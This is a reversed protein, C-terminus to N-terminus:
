TREDYGNFGGYYRGGYTSRDKKRVEIGLTKAIKYKLNTALVATGHDNLHLKDTWRFKPDRLNDNDCIFVRENERYTYKTNANILDIKYKLDNEDERGVITGVVVKKAKSLAKNVTEDISKNM